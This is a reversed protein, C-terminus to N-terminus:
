GKIGYLSFRSGISYSDSDPRLTISTISATSLFVGSTLAIEQSTSNTNGALARVTKNKSTSYADLLDIVGASFANTVPTVAGLAIQTASAGAASSVSSGSGFLLHTAYNTGTDGNIRLRSRNSGSGVTAVYRVQLHKYTSSYTGLGSFTVDSATSSLITTEILEYDGEVGGSGALFGLPILM